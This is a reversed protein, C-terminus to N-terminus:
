EAELIERVFIDYEVPVANYEQLDHRVEDATQKKAWVTGNEPSVLEYLVEDDVDGVNIRSIVFLENSDTFLYSRGHEIKYSDTRDLREITKIRGSM